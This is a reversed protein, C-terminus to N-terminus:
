AIVGPAPETPSPASSVISTVSALHPKKGPEKKLWGSWQTFQAISQGQTMLILTPGAFLIDEAAIEVIHMPTLFVLYENLTKDAVAL